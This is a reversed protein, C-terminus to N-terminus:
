HTLGPYVGDASKSFIKMMDDLHHYNEEVGWIFHPFLRVWELGGSYDWELYRNSGSGHRVWAQCM